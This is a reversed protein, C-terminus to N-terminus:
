LPTQDTKICQCKCRMIGHLWLILESDVDCHTKIMGM